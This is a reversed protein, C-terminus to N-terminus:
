NNKVKWVTANACHATPNNVSRIGCSEILGKNKAKVMPGGWARSSLPMEYDSQKEAYERVNETMFEGDWQAIFKVLIAYARDSWGPSVTEASKVAKSIGHDRLQEGTVPVPQEDFNFAAQQIM